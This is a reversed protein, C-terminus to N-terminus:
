GGTPEETGRAARWVALHQRAISSWSLAATHERGRRVLEARLEDDLAVRLMGEAISDTDRPDVEFAADGTSPLRSAVVPAGLSMAEVPPLGFGEVLPVYVLLRARAYLASLEAAPVSGALVAGRQPPLREGWGEPGVLILPWRGPLRSRIQAYAQLLRIQNKRPELTGVSLLFPGEVGLRDLRASAAEEDPPPLHDAGMPIVAVADRAAGESRLEAAVAETPVVFRDARALARRLASEHWRRGRAPYAEPVARWLLDHITVVLVAQRPELTALSVAHVVDADHPARLLGHDLAATFLPGPLGSSRVPHGLEALPDRGHRGGPPRSALLEVEPRDGEGLAAVGQLLGQTYTGIGGAAPRRLQEAVVLLRMRASM